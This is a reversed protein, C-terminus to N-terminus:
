NGSNPVHVNFRNAKSTGPVKVIDLQIVQISKAVLSTPDSSGTDVANTWGPYTAGKLSTAVKYRAQTENDVLGGELDFFLTKNGYSVPLQTYPTLIIEGSLRQVIQGEVTKEMANQFTSLGVPLLGVIGLLFCTAVGMALVVEVLSFGRSEGVVVVNRLCDIETTKKKM